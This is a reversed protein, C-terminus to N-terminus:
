EDRTLMEQQRIFEFLKKELSSPMSDFGVGVEWMKDTQVIRTGRGSMMYQQEALTFLVLIRDDSDFTLDGVDAKSVKFRYGGLSIDIAKAPHWRSTMPNDTEYGMHFIMIDWFCSVRLFGRRQIRRPYDLQRAWLISFSGQMEVRKVSMDFVYLASGDEMIFEFELDRYIPLLTGKVLPYALGVSEEKVDEVWTSYRGKYVGANIVIDGKVGVQMKYTYDKQYLSDFLAM